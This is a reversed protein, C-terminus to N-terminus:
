EPALGSYHVFAAARGVGDIREQARRRRALLRDRGTADVLFRAEHRGQDSEAVVGDEGASADHVRVGERVEAGLAEARRLLADDFPAREVHWAYGPTGEMGEDFHYRAHRGTEEEVFDAGSKYVAPLERPDFGLREFIGLEAPLLSEGIHFRPFRERELVLVSHGDKALLAAATAGAPGGGVVLVDHTTVARESM